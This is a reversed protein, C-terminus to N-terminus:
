FTGPDNEKLLDAASRPVQMTLERLAPIYLEAAKRQKETFHASYLAVSPAWWQIPKDEFPLTVRRAMEVLCFRKVNEVCTANSSGVMEELENKLDEEKIWKEFPDNKKKSTNSM